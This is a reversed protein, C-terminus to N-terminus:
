ICHESVPAGLTAGKTYNCSEPRIRYLSVGRNAEGPCLASDSLAVHGTQVLTFARAWLERMEARTHVGDVITERQTLANRHVRRLYLFEDANRIRASFFARMLFQTDVAIKRDTAFGGAKEFVSRRAFATAHLFCSKRHDTVLAHNVDLPYRIAEAHSSTEDLRLEHCGLIDARQELLQQKMHIFRDATSIDDSDHFAILTRKTSDLLRQRVLYPGVPHPNTQYFTADPYTNVIDQVPPLIDDDLGIHLALQDRDDCQRLASLASKLYSCNGRHACIIDVAATQFAVASVPSPSAILPLQRVLFHGVRISNGNALAALIAYSISTPSPSVIGSTLRLFSSFVATHCIFSDVMGDRRIGVSPPVCRPLLIILAKQSAFIDASLSQLSVPLLEAVQKSLVAVAVVDPALLNSISPVSKAYDIDLEQAQLCDARTLGIICARSSHRLSHVTSVDCSLRFCYM